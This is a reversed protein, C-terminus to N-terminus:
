SWGTGLLRSVPEWRPPHAVPRSTFPGALPPLSDALHVGPPRIVATAPPSRTNVVRRAWRSKRPCPCTEIVHRAVYESTNPHASTLHPGGAHRAVRARQAKRRALRLDHRKDRLPVRVPLDCGAKHEGLLGHFVVHVPNVGFESGIGPRRGDDAPGVCAVAPRSRPPREAGPPGGRLWPRRGQGQCVIMLDSGTCM